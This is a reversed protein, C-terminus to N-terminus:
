KRGPIAPSAPLPAAPVRFPVCFVRPVPASQNYEEMNEQVPALGTENKMWDLAKEGTLTMQGFVPMKAKKTAGLLAMIAIMIMAEIM